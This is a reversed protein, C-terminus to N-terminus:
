RFGRWLLPSQSHQIIYKGKKLGEGKSFPQSSAVNIDPFSWVESTKLVESTKKIAINYKENEKNIVFAFPMNPCLYRIM